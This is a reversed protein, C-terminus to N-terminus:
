ERPQNTCSRRNHGLGNCNSCRLDRSSQDKAMTRNKKPRGAKRRVDPVGIDGRVLASQINYPISIPELHPEYVSKLAEKSFIAPYYHEIRINCCNCAYCAHVCPLFTHYWKLCSYYNENLRVVYTRNTQRDLIEFLHGVKRLMELQHIEKTIRAMTKLMKPCFNTELNEAQQRNKDQLTIIKARIGDLLTTIPKDRLNKIWNNFSEALNSTNIDLRPCPSYATIWHSFVCNEDNVGVLWNYVDVNEAKIMELCNNADTENYCRALSDLSRQFHKSRCVSKLNAKFHQICFFHPSEPFIARM